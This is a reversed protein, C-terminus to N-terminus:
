CVWLKGHPKDRLTQLRPAAQKNFFTRPLPEFLVITPILQKGAQERLQKIITQHGLHLGDFAGVSVACSAHLPAINQDARILRM